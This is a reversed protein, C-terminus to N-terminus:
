CSKWLRTVVGAGDAARCARLSKGLMSKPLDGLRRPASVDPGAAAIM